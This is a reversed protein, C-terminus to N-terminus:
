LVSIRAAEIRLTLWTRSAASAPASTAVIGVSIKLFSSLWGSVSLPRAAKMASALFALTVILVYAPGHPTRGLFQLFVPVIPQRMLATGAGIGQAGIAIVHRAEQTELTAMQAAGQVFLRQGRELGGVNAGKDGRPARFSQARAPHLPCQCCHAAEIAEQRAFANQFVGGWTGDARRPQFAAQRAREAFHIGAARNFFGARM